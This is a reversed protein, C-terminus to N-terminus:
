FWGTEGAGALGGALGLTAGGTFPALAIGAIGLVTGIRAKKKAKKEARRQLEMQMRYREEEIFFSFDAAEYEQNAYMDAIDRYYGSQMTALSGRGRSQVLGAGTALAAIGKTQQQQNQQNTIAQSIMNMKAAAMGMTEGSGSAQALQEPTVLWNGQPDVLEGRGMPLGYRQALNRALQQINVQGAAMNTGGVGQGGVGGGALAQQPGFTYPNFGVSGLGPVSAQQVQNYFGQLSALQAQIGTPPLGGGPAGGPQQMQGAPPVGGQQQQPQQYQQM